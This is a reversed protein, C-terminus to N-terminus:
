DLTVSWLYSSRQHNDNEGLYIRGGDGVALEHIRAPSEGSADDALRTYRETEGSKIHWRFLQTRGNMGGAGYLIGDLIALAPFRGSSIANTVKQVAGTQTDIRCLLGAVTGAYIYRDGDYVTSDCFGFDQKHPTGALVDTGPQDAAGDALLQDKDDLRALGHGFVILCESDPHYKFLRIPHVGFMEDWARTEACTGWLWGRSDVVANHPQAFLIANGLYAVM